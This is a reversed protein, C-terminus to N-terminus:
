EQEFRKPFSDIYELLEETVEMCKAKGQKLLEMFQAKEEGLLTNANLEAGLLDTMMSHWLTHVEQRKDNLEVQLEEYRERSPKKM